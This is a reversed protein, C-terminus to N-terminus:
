TSSSVSQIVQLMQSYLAMNTKHSARLSMLIQKRYARRQNEEEELLTIIESVLEDDYDDAGYTGLTSILNQRTSDNSSLGFLAENNVAMAETIDAGFNLLKNMIEKNVQAPKEPLERVEIGTDHPKRRKPSGPVPREEEDPDYDKPRKCPQSRGTDVRGKIVNKVRKATPLTGRATSRPVPVELNSSSSSAKKKPLVTAKSTTNGKKRAIKSNTLRNVALKIESSNKNQKGTKSVMSYNSLRKLLVKAENNKVGATHQTPSPTANTVKKTQDSLRSEAKDKKVSGKDHMYSKLKESLKPTRRSRRPEQQDKTKEKADKHVFEQLKAPPRAQRGSKRTPTMNYFMQAADLTSRQLRTTPLGAAAPSPAQTLM